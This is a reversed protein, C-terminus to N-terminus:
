AHMEQTTCYSYTLLIVDQQDNEHFLCHPHCFAIHDAMVEWYHFVSYHKDVNLVTVWFDMLLSSKAVSTQSNIAVVIVLGSTGLNKGRSSSLASHMCSCGECEPLVEIFCQFICLLWIEPLAEDHTQLCSLFFPDTDCLPPFWKSCRRHSKCM